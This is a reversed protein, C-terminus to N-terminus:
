ALDGNTSPNLSTDVAAGALRLGHGWQAHPESVDMSAMSTRVSLCRLEGVAAVRAPQSGDRLFGNPHQPPLTSAAQGRCLHSWLGKMGQWVRSGVIRGLGARLGGLHQRARDLTDGKVVGLVAEAYQADLGAAM